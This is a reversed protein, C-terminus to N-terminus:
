TQPGTTQLSHTRSWTSYSSLSWAVLFPAEHFGTSSCNQNGNQVRLIEGQRPLPQYRLLGEKTPVSPLLDWSSPHTQSDSSSSPAPQQSGNLSRPQTLHPAVPLLPVPLGLSSLAPIPCISSMRGKRTKKIQERITERGSSSKLAM